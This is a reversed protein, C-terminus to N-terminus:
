LAQCGTYSEEFGEKGSAEKKYLDYYKSCNDKEGLRYATELIRAMSHTRLEGNTFRELISLYRHRASLYDQTKFYFDAIYREKLRVQERIAAMHKEADKKYSSQPFLTVLQRYYKEAEIGSTLDRDFTDPMQEHHSRAIMWIIRDMEKHKPHFDRFLIYASAAEAFSEQEFLIDAGMLEAHTAYYSYPYKSRITGLKETAMIYRGNDKLLRAEKLLIEAETKGQPRPTACSLFLCAGFFCLILSRVIVIGGM